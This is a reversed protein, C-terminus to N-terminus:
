CFNNMPQHNPNLRQIFKFEQAILVGFRQCMLQFASNKSAFTVSDLSEKKHNKLLVLAQQTLLELDSDSIKSTKEDVKDLKLNEILKISNEIHNDDNSLLARNVIGELLGISHDIRSVNQLLPFTTDTVEMIAVKTKNFQATFMYGLALITIIFVVFIISLLRSITIGSHKM